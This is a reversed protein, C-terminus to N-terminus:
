PYLIDTICLVCLRSDINFILNIGNAVMFYQYRKRQALGQCSIGCYVSFEWIHKLFYEVPQFPPNNHAFKQILDVIIMILIIKM